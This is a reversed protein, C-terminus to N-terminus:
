IEMEEICNNESALAVESEKKVTYTYAKPKVVTAILAIFAGSGLFM